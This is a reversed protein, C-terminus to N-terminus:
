PPKAGQTCLGPGNSQPSELTGLLWLEICAEAPEGLSLAPGGKHREDQLPKALILLHRVDDATRAPNAMLANVMEPQLGVIATYNANIEAISTAGSGVALGADNPLRLGNESYIRMGSALQGHCDVSGCRREFVPEVSDRFGAPDVDAVSLNPTSSSDPPSSCSAGVCLAAALHACAIIRVGKM